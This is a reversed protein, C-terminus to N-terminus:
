KTPEEFELLVRFGHLVGEKDLAWIRQISNTLNVFPSAAVIEHGSPRFAIWVENCRPCTAPIDGIKDPAVTTRAHCSLCQFCVGKIDEIGVILRREITM